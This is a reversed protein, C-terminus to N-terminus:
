NVEYIMKKFYSQKLAFIQKPYYEVIKGVMSEIIEHAIEIVQDVEM